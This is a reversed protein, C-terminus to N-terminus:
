HELTMWGTLVLGLVVDDVEDPALGSGECGVVTM